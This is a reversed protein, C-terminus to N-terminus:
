RDIRKVLDNDRLNTIATVGEGQRTIKLTTKGQRLLGDIQRSTLKGTEFKKEGKDSFNPYIVLSVTHHIFLLWCKTVDKRNDQVRYSIGNNSQLIALDAEDM